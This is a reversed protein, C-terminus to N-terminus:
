VQCLFSVRALFADRAESGVRRLLTNAKYRLSEPYRRGSGVREKFRVWVKARQGPDLDLDFRLEGADCEWATPRSEVLVEKVSSPECERKRIAFRRGQEFHNTVVLESAYMEIEVVGASRERQRCAGRVVGGLSGWSLRCNLANLRQIFEALHECRDRCFGHHIVILCPKGLLIDFAFNEVGQSPYRRAFIPFRHYNMIAVDWVDSTRIVPPEPDASIVETNVAAIFEACKLARIAEGSFVGQPFVMINDHRIGTRSEHSAMRESARKVKWALLEADRTGFESRTHDCGHISLSYREPNEEFLRVVSATSRRWNWPIFAINTSFDHRRMVDLLDSFRLFGYQPKLLPDDIVLCASSEPAKWCIGAFAWKIYLVIPAASLFHDRIDFNGTTIPTDLDVIKSSTSLFVPVGHSEAKFFAASRNTSIIGAVAASAFEAGCEEERGSVCLGSVPGCFEPLAGSVNWQSTPSAGQHVAAAEDGTVRRVLDQLSSCDQGAYVFVSHVRARWLRMTEVHRECNELLEAFVDSSCFLKVRSSDGSGGDRALWDTMPLDGCPIGFFGLLRAIRGGESSPGSRSLLVASDNM